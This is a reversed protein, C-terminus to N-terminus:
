PHARCVEIAFIAGVVLIATLVIFEIRRIGFHLFFLVVLVDEITLLVGILSPLKFLMNLAVATGVVGTLDTAMM